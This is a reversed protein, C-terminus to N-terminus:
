LLAIQSNTLTFVKKCKIEGYTNVAGDVLEIILKTNNESLLWLKNEKAYKLLNSIADSLNLAYTPMCHTRNEVVVQTEKYIGDIYGFWNCRAIFTPREKTPTIFNM